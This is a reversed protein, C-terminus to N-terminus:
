LIIHLQVGLTCRKDDVYKKTAADTNNTPTGLNTVTLGSCGIKDSMVFGADTLYSRNGYQKTVPESDRQSNPLNIIQNSNM